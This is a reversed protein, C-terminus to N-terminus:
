RRWSIYIKNFGKHFHSVSYFNYIRLHEVLERTMDASSYTPVDCLSNPIVMILDLQGMAAATQVARQIMNLMDYKAKNFGHRRSWRINRAEDATLFTTQLVSDM